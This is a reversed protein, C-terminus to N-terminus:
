VGKCYRCGSHGAEWGQIRLWERDQAVRRQDEPLRSIEAERVSREYMEASKDREHKEEPSSLTGASKRKRKSSILINFEFPTKNSAPQTYSLKSCHNFADTEELLDRGLIADCPLGPLVHFVIGSLTSDEIIQSPLQDTHATEPEPTETVPERWDLSFNAVYVEGATEAKTGDGFQITRRAAERTDVIFGEREACDPCMFNLDARTDAVAVLKRGDLTCRMRNWSSSRRRRPSGIWLLSSISSIELPCTKLMHKNKTFIEAQYLFPMGLILPVPCHAFVYFTRLKRGLTQRLLKVYARVRGASWVRASSSLEFPKLDLRNRSIELNNEVAFAESIINHTSGSDPYALQEENNLLIRLIKRKNKIRLIDTELNRIILRPSGKKPPAISPRPAQASLSPLPADELLHEDLRRKHVQPLSIAEHPFTVSPEMLAAGHSLAMGTRNEYPEVGENRMTAVGKNHLDTMLMELDVLQRDETERQHAREYHDEQMRAEVDQPSSYQDQIPHQQQQYQMSLPTSLQHPARAYSQQVPPPAFTTAMQYKGDFSNRDLPRQSAYQTPPSDLARHLPRLSAYQIPPSAIHGQSQRFALHGPNSPPQQRTGSPSIPPQYALKDYYELDLLSDLPDLYSGQSKSHPMSTSSRQSERDYELNRLSKSTSFDEGSQEPHSVPPSSANTGLTDPWSEGFNGEHSRYVQPDVYTTDGPERRKYVHPREATNFAMMARQAEVQNKLSESAQTQKSMEAVEALAHIGSNSHDFARKEKSNQRARHQAATTRLSQPTQQAHAEEYHQLLDHLTPLTQGCCAFDRMFNAELKPLYSSHYSPSQYPFPSTGAMIIDDRIWSGVSVGGWSMDQVLRRALSERRPRGDNNRNPNNMSIPKVGGFSDQRGRGISSDFATGSM